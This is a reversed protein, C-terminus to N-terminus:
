IMGSAISSATRSGSAVSRWTLSSPFTSSAFILALSSSKTLILGSRPGRRPDEGDANGPPWRGGGAPVPLASMLWISLSAAPRPHVAVVPLEIGLLLAQGRDRAADLRIPDHHHRTGLGRYASHAGSDLTVRLAAVPLLHRAGRPAPVS